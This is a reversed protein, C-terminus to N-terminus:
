VVSNENVQQYIFQGHLKIMYPILFPVYNMCSYSLMSASYPSVPWILLM